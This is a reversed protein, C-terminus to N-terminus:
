IEMKLKRDDSLMVYIAVKTLSTTAMHAIGLKTALKKDDESLLRM